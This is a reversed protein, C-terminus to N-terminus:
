SNQCLNCQWFILGLVQQDSNIYDSSSFSDHLNDQTVNHM